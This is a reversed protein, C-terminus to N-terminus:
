PRGVKVLPAMSAMLKKLGGDPFAVTVICDGRSQQLHVVTGVGFVSHEVRDGVAFPVVTVQRAASQRETEPLAGVRTLRSHAAALGARRGAHCNTLLHEPIERVFQSVPWSVTEGYLLREEACTLYLRERARTMGVYALRREEELEGPERLARSHPFLGDEMGVLFVVPFELGKASHLTMMILADQDEGYADVDAILAVHELFAGLMTAPPLGGPDEFEPYTVSEVEFQKTVSLFEKLNEIRAEAELSKEAILAGLYGSEQLIYETLETLPVGNRREICADLFKRLGLVRSAAARALNDVEGAQGLVEFLPLDHRTAYDELRAQTVEGIARKPVNIIRRLSLTDSPNAVVRLYALIDKIEKREYFRLGSVIRYPVGRKMFEEEFTRSQAHTRYLVTVAGLDYGARKLEPLEGAVFRAEDGGDYGQYFRVKEGRPNDTYLTKEPRETNHEIVSNAADLINKTSRYNQELKVVTASPYDRSFSLINRIDAGRFRYISQDADGVVALNGKEGALMEVLRYQAHNTDQYEDVLLHRFRDRYGSLVEPYGEFLKVAQMILDDFDMCDNRVLQEQYVPYIRAVIKEWHDVAREAYEAAGRLENKAGSIASLVARPEVKKSDINLERLALRVAALQDTTDFITFSSSYGLLTAHNRLIRVCTSHFTGMWVRGAVPGVLHLLREKMESAAKNTFTVALIHYPPVMKEQLLYAIRYTLVRTKGSGAGAIVLLPGDGHTVARRQADNLETLLQVRAV